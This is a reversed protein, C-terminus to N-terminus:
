FLILEEASVLSEISVSMKELEACIAGAVCAGDEAVDARSVVLQLADLLGEGLECDEVLFEGGNDLLLLGDNVGRLLVGLLGDVVELRSGLVNVLADLASAVTALELPPAQENNHEDDNGNDKTNRQTDSQGLVGTVFGGAAAALLNKSRKKKEEEGELAFFLSSSVLCGMVSFFFFLFFSFSFSQSSM